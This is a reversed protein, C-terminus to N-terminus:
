VVIEHVPTFNRVFPVAAGVGSVPTKGAGAGGRLLFAM